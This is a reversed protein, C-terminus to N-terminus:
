RTAEIDRIVERANKWAKTMTPHETPNPVASNLLLQITDQLIEERTRSADYDVLNGDFHPQVGGETECYRDLKEITM